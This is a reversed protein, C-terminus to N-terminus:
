SPPGRIFPILARILLSMSLRRVEGERGERERERERERPFFFFVVWLLLTAEQLGPLQGDGSM